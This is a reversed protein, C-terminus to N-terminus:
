NISSLNINREAMDAIHLPLKPDMFPSGTYFMNTAARDAAEASHDRFVPTAAPLALPPMTLKLDFRTPDAQVEHFFAMLGNIARTATAVVAVIAENVVKGINKMAKSFRRVFIRRERETLPRNVGLASALYVWRMPDNSQYLQRLHNIQKQQYRRM